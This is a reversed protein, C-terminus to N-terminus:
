VGPQPYYPIGDSAAQRDTAPNTSICNRRYEFFVQRFGHKVKNAFFRVISFSAQNLLAEPIGLVSMM